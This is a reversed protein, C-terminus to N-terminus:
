KFIYYEVMKMITGDQKETDFENVEKGGLFEPIKRSPTNSTVVPYRLYDYELNKDAWDKLGVVAERGYKHGQASKKIWIGFEPTKTDIHHVGAGGIFEDTDKLFILVQYNIGERMKEEAEVLYDITEQEEKPTSPYMMATVEDTFNTFVERSYKPSVPRLLLHETFLKQPMKM